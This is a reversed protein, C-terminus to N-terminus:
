RSESRGQGEELPSGERDVARLYWALPVATLLAVAVFVPVAGMSASDSTPDARSGFWQDAAVGFGELVFMALMAGAILLGWTRRRWCAVAAVAGLPLWFSLDQIFVPNTLLGTDKVLRGPEDDVLASVIQGLWAHANAVIIALLIGGVARAPM